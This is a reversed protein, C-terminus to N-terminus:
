SPRTRTHAQGGPLTTWDGPARPVLGTREDPWEGPEEEIVIFYVPERLGAAGAAPGAGTGGPGSRVGDPVPLVLMLGGCLAVGAAAAALRWPWPSRNERGGTRDGARGAARSHAGATGRSAPGGQGAGSGHAAGRPREDGSGSPM